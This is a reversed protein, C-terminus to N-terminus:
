AVRLTSEIYEDRAPVTWVLLSLSYELWEAVSGFHLRLLDADHRERGQL